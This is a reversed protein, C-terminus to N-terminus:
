HNKEGINEKIQRSWDKFANSWDYDKRMFAYPTNEVFLLDKKGSFNVFKSRLKEANQEVHIGFGQMICVWIDDPSLTLPLHHVYSLLFTEVFAHIKTNRIKSDKDLISCGFSPGM